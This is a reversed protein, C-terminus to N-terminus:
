HKLHRFFELKTEDPWTDPHITRDLMMLKPDRPNFRPWHLSSTDPSGNRAFAVLSNMLQESFGRDASTWARTERFRNFSDVSGLWFPVGSAHYAGVTAPDIDTFKADPAFSHHRAFEYSFVPAKGTSVQARAWADMATVMTGDRDALHSQAQAEADTAAPYLKLFEDANDGFKERAKAIYDALGTIRGLGGFSEDRTFGVMLPVDSQKGQAFTEAISEPLFFGDVIPGVPPTGPTRPVVLRDAPLARLDALSDAHWIKELKLGDQEANALPRMSAPGASGILAGSMGMAREFLGKALPSAQLALVSMSGASQGMITVNEPDGGFAAINARIWKLAAVQDLLGYNGSSGHPSEKSLEPLALFGLAGLRYNLNVFVVGRRALAEGGYLAMSGSGVFFAGGHIFVIVPAKHLGPKAWVNLYLCDESTVEAGSYQNTEIGRQPQMCQPAFRDAHRVGSWAPVPQPDRWRLNRVPPQAYRIGLYTEIGSSTKLGDIRGSTTKVVPAPIFTAETANAPMIAIPTATALGVAFIAIAPLRM